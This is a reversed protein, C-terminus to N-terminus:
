VLIRNLFVPRNEYVAAMYVGLPKAMLLLAAFYLTIQLLGNETM